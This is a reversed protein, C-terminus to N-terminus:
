TYKMIPKVTIMEHRYCAFMTAARIESPTMQLQEIMSYIADVFNKYVPDNQYARKADEFRIPRERNAIFRFQDFDM